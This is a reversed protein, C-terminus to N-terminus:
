VVSGKFITPNRTQVSDGSSLRNGTHGSDRPRWDSGSGGGDWVFPAPEPIVWFQDHPVHRDLMPRVSFGTGNLRITDGGLSYIEYRNTVFTELYATVQAWETTPLMAVFEPGNGLKLLEICGRFIESILKM